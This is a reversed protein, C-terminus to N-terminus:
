DEITYVMKYDDMIFGEGIDCKIKGENKFGLKEYIKISDTNHRNVTLWLTNLKSEMCKDIIFNMAKKGYGKGRYKSDIYYKSLHMSKKQPEALLAIYGVWNHQDCVLYYDWGKSIQESIAKSSQFKQLMYEVQQKGIIPEYHEQWIGAALKSTEEVLPDNNVKIFKM